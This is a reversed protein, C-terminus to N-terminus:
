RKNEFFFIKEIMLLVIFLTKKSVNKVNKQNKEFDVEFIRGACIKDSLDLIKGITMFTPEFSAPGRM